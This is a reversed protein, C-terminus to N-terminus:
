INSVVSMIPASDKRMVEEGMSKVAVLDTGEMDNNDDSLNHLTKFVDANPLDTSSLFDADM